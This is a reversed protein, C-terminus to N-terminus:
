KLKTIRKIKGIFKKGLNKIKDEYIHIENIKKQKQTYEKNTTALKTNFVMKITPKLWESGDLCVRNRLMAYTPSKMEPIAGLTLWVHGNYCHAIDCHKGIAHFKIPENLNEFINDIVKNCNCAQLNGTWLSVFGVWDGAYCYEKRKKGFITSKFKLM